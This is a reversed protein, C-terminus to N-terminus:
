PLFPWSGLVSGLSVSSSNQVASKSHVSLDYSLRSFTTDQFGASSLRESISSFHYILPLLLHWFILFEKHRGQAARRYWAAVWCHAQYLLVVRPQHFSFIFTEENIVASATIRLISTQWLAGRPHVPSRDIWVIQTVLTLM